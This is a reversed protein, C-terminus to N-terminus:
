GHRWCIAIRGLSSAIILANNDQESASVKAAADVKVVGDGSEEENNNGTESKTGEPSWAIGYGKAIEQLYASVLEPPPTFLTAKRMIQMAEDSVFRPTRM